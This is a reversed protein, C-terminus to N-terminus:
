VHQCAGATSRKNSIMQYTTRQPGLLMNRIQGQLNAFEATYTKQLSDTDSVWVGRENQKPHRLTIFHSPPRGSTNTGSTFPATVIRNFQYSYLPNPIAVSVDDCVASAAPIWFRSVAVCCITIICITIRCISLGSPMAAQLDAESSNCCIAKRCQTLLRWACLRCDLQISCAYMFM